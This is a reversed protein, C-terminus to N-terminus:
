RTTDYIGRRDAAVGILSITEFCLECLFRTGLAVHFYLLQIKYRMCWRCYQKSRHDFTGHKTSIMYKGGWHEKMKRQKFSSNCALIGAEFSTLYKYERFLLCGM